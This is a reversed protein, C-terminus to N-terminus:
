FVRPEQMFGSSFAVIGEMSNQNLSRFSVASRKLINVCHLYKLTPWANDKCNVTPLLSTLTDHKKLFIRNIGLLATILLDSQKHM